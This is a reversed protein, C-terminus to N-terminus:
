EPDQTICEFHEHALELQTAAEDMTDMWNAYDQGSDSSHWRDSKTDHHQEADNHLGRVEEMLDYLEGSLDQIRKWMKNNIRKM